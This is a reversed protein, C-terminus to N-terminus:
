PTVTKSPESSYPDGFEDDGGLGEMPDDDYLSEDDDFDM